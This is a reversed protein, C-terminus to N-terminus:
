IGSGSSTRYPVTKSELNQTQAVKETVGVPIESLTFFSIQTADGGLFKKAKGSEFELGWYDMDIDCSLRM